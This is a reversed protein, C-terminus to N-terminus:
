AAPSIGREVFYGQLTAPNAHPDALAVYTDPRLLYAANRAIGIKRHGPRFDFVHLPVGHARGWAALADSAEGYVLVRWGMEALAAAAQPTSAPTWPLRDGAQVGGAKGVSLPSGRYNLTIQSVTRFMYERLRELSLASPGEACLLREGLGLWDSTVFRSSAAAM